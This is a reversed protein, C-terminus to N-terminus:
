LWEPSPTALPNSARSRDVSLGSAEDAIEASREGAADNRLPGSLDSKGQIV